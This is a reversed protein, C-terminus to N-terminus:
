HQAAGRDARLIVGHTGVGSAGPSVHVVGGGDEGGILYGVGGTVAAAAYAAEGAVCIQGDLSFVAAGQVPQPLRGAVAAAGAAPDVRPIVDTAAPGSATTQGGFVWILGVAAAAGAYRVPVPLRGAVRFHRGDTTALM